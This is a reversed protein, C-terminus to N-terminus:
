LWTSKLYTQSTDINKNSLLMVTLGLTKLLKHVKLMAKQAFIHHLKALISSFCYDPLENAAM